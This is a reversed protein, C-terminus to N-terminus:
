GRSPLSPRLPSPSASASPSPSTAAGRGRGAHLTTRAPTRHPTAVRERRAATATASVANTPDPLPPMPPIPLFHRRGFPNKGTGDNGLPNTMNKFFILVISKIKYFIGRWSFHKPKMGGRGTAEIRIGLPAGATRRSFAEKPTRHHGERKAVAGDRRPLKADSKDRQQPSTM